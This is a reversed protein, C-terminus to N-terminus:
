PTLRWAARSARVRSLWSPTRPSRDKVRLVLAPRGLRINEFVLSMSRRASIMLLYVDSGSLGGGLLRRGPVWRLSWPSDYVTRCPNNPGVGSAFFSRPFTPNGLTEKTAPAPNSGLFSWSEDGPRLGGLPSARLGEGM